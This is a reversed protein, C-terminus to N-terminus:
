NLNLLKIVENLFTGYSYIPINYEEADSERQSMRRTEGKILCFTHNTVKPTINGGLNEIFSIIMERKPWEFKGVLCVNKGTLIQSYQSQLSNDYLHQYLSATIYCCDLADLAKNSFTKVDLFIKLTTFDFGPCVMYSLRKRTILLTDIVYFEKQIFGERTLAPIDFKILNHGILPLNECFVYLENKIEDFSPNNTLNEKNVGLLYETSPFITDNPNVYKMFKNTLQNNKYKLAAVQVINGLFNEQQSLKVNIVVYDKLMKRLRHISYQNM